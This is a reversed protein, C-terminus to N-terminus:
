RAIRVDVHVSHGLLRAAHLNIQNKHFYLIWTIVCGNVYSLRKDTDDDHPAQVLHVEYPHFKQTKFIRHVSSKSITLEQSIKRILKVPSRTVNSLVM